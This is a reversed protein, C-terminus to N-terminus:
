NQWSGEGEPLQLPAAPIGEAAAQEPSLTLYGPLLQVEPWLQALAALRVSGLGSPPNQEAAPESPLFVGSLEVTGSPAPVVQGGEVLGRVVPLVRGDSTEFGTVARVSDSGEVLETLAPLYHGSVLVQRGYVYGTLMGDPDINELLPLPPLALQERAADAESNEFARMQWLGLGLMVITAAIGITAVAAQKLRISPM